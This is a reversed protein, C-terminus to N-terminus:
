DDIVVFSGGWAPYASSSIGNRESADYEEEGPRIEITVTGGEALTITGVHVAATCVSSDDTYVDTGWITFEQGGPPCDYEIQEGDNGRHTSATARWADIVTTDSPPTEPIATPTPSAGSSCAALMAIVPALLLPPTRRINM